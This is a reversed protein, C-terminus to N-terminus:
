SGSACLKDFDFVEWPITQPKSPTRKVRQRPRDDDAREREDRFITLGTLYNTDRTTGCACKRDIDSVTLGILQLGASGNRWKTTCGGASWTGMSVAMDSTITLVGKKIQFDGVGGEGMLDPSSDMFHSLGLKWLTYTGAKDGTFILVAQPVDENDDPARKARKKAARRVIVAVDDTGDGDLDGKTQAVKIFGRPVLAGESVVKGSLASKLAAADDPRFAAQTPSAFFLTGALCLVTLACREPATNM